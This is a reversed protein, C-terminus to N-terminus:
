FRLAWGLEELSAVGGLGEWITGGVPSWGNLYMLKHPGNKNFGGCCALTVM